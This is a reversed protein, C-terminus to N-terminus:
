NLQQDIVEDPVFKLLKPIQKNHWIFTLLSQPSIPLCMPNLGWHSQTTHTRTGGSDTINLGRPTLVLSFLYFSTMPARIGNILCPLPSTISYKLPIYNLHFFAHNPIVIGHTRTGGNRNVFFFILLQDCWGSRYRFSTSASDLSSKDACAGFTLNAM